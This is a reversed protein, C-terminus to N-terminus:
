VLGTSTHNSSVCSAPRSARSRIDAITSAVAPARMMTTMVARVAPVLESQCGGTLAPRVM